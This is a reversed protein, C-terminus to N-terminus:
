EPRDLIKRASGFLGSPNGALPFSLSVLYGIEQARGQLRQQLTRLKEPNNYRPSAVQINRDKRLDDREIM